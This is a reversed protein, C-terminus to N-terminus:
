LSYNEVLKTKLKNENEKKMGCMRQTCAARSFQSQADFGM